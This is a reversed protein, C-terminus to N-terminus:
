SREFADFSAASRADSSVDGFAIFDGNEVFQALGERGRKLEILHQAGDHFLDVLHQPGSVQDSSSISM